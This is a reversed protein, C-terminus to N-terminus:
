IEIVSPHDILDILDIETATIVTRYDYLAVVRNSFFPHQMPPQVHCIPLDQLQASQYFLQENLSLLMINEMSRSCTM